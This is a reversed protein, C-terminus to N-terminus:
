REISVKDPTFPNKVTFMLRIADNITIFSEKHCFTIMLCRTEIIRISEVRNNFWSGNVDNEGNSKSLIPFNTLKIDVISKEM